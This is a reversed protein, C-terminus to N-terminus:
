WRIFQWFRNQEWWTKCVMFFMTVPFNGCGIDEKDPTYGRYTGGLHVESKISNRVRFKFIAM